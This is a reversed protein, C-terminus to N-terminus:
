PTVNYAIATDENTSASAISQFDERMFAVAVRQYTERYISDDTEVTLATRQGLAWENRNVCLMYTKTTTIGDNVGSANLDERVHESVIVPVGFVSGIQGNLIVAAPGMKDVTLLNTDALLSHLNSVGIIFALDAPNAGWKGMAKRVIGLNLATCSTATAVTQALAKKRLGDWASRVDTAGNSQTDTDQHTGDTDGDLIAKEEGDVFAQVLKRQTYPLVAIASDADLSRSILTRAGIIEADFTAAGTGPTSATVKSATDSTPEAVRYATADAGEIPWKWPNTPLNIRQFLPAVKGSARVKEHLMAGIGTPVWDNGEGATDVDMARLVHNWEDKFLPHSRAVQFGKASTNADRDILMGFIAMDAVTKQFGRIADRHGPQYEALRPALVGAEDTSSRVIVREVPNMANGSSARVTENTAWLAEDLSRSATVSETATNVNVTAYRARRAEAQEVRSIDGAEIEASRIVENLGGEGELKAVLEDHRAREADTWGDASEKATNIIDDIESLVSARQDRLDSLTLPGDGGRVIPFVRGNLVTYHIGEIAGRPILNKV